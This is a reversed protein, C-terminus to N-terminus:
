IESVQDNGVFLTEQCFPNVLVMGTDRYDGNAPSRPESLQDESTELSQIERPLEVAHKSFYDMTIANNWYSLNNEPNATKKKRRMCCVTLLVSCSSIPVSIALIVWIIDMKSLCITTRHQPKDGEAVHSINRVTGPKWTGAPVLRNLFNGTATSVVTSLPSPVRSTMSWAAGAEEAAQSVTSESFGATHAQTQLTRSTGQPFGQSPASVSADFAAQTTGTSATFGGPSASLPTITLWSSSPSPNDQPEGRPHQPPVLARHASAPVGPTATTTQEEGRSTFAPGTGPVTTSLGSKNEARGLSTILSTWWSSSPAPTAAGMPPQPSSSPVQTPGRPSLVSPAPEVSGAFNGKYIQFIKGLPRKQSLHTSSPNRGQQSEKRRSHGSSVPPLPGSSSGAGRQSSGPPRPPRRTASGPATATHPRVTMGVPKTLLITPIAEGHPHGQSHFSTNEIAVLPPGTHLPDEPHPSAATVMIPLITNTPPDRDPHPPMAAMPVTAQSTPGNNHQTQVADSAPIPTAVSHRPSSSAATVMTGPTTSSPLVQLSRRPSSEQVTLTLVEALVVILLISLLQCYLAQLSRKM